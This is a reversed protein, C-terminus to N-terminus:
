TVCSCVATTFENKSKKLTRSNTLEHTRSNTLEFKIKPIKQDFKFQEKLSDAASFTKRDEAM